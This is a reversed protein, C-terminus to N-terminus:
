ILLFTFFVDGESLQCYENETDTFSLMIFEITKRLKLVDKWGGDAIVNALLTNGNGFMGISTCIEVAM